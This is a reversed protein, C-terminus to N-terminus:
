ACRNGLLVEVVGRTEESFRGFEEETLLNHSRMAALQILASSRRPNDFTQAMEDNRDQMIIYIDAYRQHFDKTNESNIQAVESLVKQCFRELAVPHLQKFLKWDSEKIERTM